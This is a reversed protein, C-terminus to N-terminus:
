EKDACSVLKTRPTYIMEQKALTLWIHGDTVDVLEYIGRSRRLLVRALRTSSFGTRDQSEMVSILQRDSHDSVVACGSMPETFIYPVDAYTVCWVDENLKLRDGAVGYFNYERGTHGDFSALWAVHGERALVSFTLMLYGIAFGPTYTAIGPILQIGVFWFVPCVAALLYLWKM